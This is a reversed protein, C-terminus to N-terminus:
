MVLSVRRELYKFLWVLGFWELGLGMRSVTNREGKQRMGRGEEVLHGKRQCDRGWSGNRFRQVIDERGGTYM